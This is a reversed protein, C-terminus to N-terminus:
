AGLDSKTGSGSLPKASLRSFQSRATRLMNRVKELIWAEASESDKQKYWLFFIVGAYLAGGAISLIVLYSFQALFAAPTHWRSQIAFVAAAMVLSGITPRLFIALIERRGFEIAKRLLLFNLPTTIISGILTSAAAGFTSYVPVLWLLLPITVCGHVALVLSTSRSMGVALNVHHATSLFVMLVGNIALVRLLPVAAGWKNGLLTFIIPDALLCVGVGAPMILLILVSTVRVYSSQLLSPNSKLHAYGPFMARNVPAAVERTVMSAIDRAMSLEGLAASGVWGGVILNAIRGQFLGVVETLYLWKSFSMLQGLRALSLRPRFPHLVYSLAVAICTGTLIGALLAWYNRMIFAAPLTVLFTTALRKIVLYKFEQDFKLEKRFAIVGVNEFGQIGQRLGLLLMVTALRPDDYIKAMPWALSVVIAALFIGFILNFTWVTNFHEETADVRQVLATDLGVAGMVELVAIISTALAILGFDEPALLRALVATSLIGTCRDVVKFLVMWAAGTAMQSTLSPSRRTEPKVEAQQPGIEFPEQSTLPVFINEETLRLM